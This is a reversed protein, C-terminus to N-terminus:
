GFYRYTEQLLLADDELNPSECIVLGGVRFDKLARLLAPYNLDSEKLNLHKIEGKDGYAIGAIHIHMDDLAAKGLKNEICSLIDCFDEYSNTKGNTRAHCHAFDVCPALGNVESSLNVLEEITGFQSIKGTTEPRIILREEGAVFEAQNIIEELQNKVASYTKQPSDGMYFAAHFVVSRAGCLSAIRVAHLLRKRSATIKEIERANFNIFYPAHASLRVGKERALQKIEIASKENVRVGRVFELEMCGLGLEAIREIGKLTTREGASHPIGATGFLLEPLKM